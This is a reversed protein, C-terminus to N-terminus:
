LIWCWKIFRCYNFTPFQAKSVSKLKALRLFSFITL